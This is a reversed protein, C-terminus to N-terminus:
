SREDIKGKRSKISFVLGLLQLTIVPMMAVMAIVGFGDILVNAGEVQSAVGHAFALIFTASMPGSAVAGADFAIGVFLPPVVAFLALSLGYGVLLLHWLQIAPVVIKLISLFIAMGVGFCLAILVNGKSIYGSTVEEIQHTLVYVAPEALIIVVGIIFSIVLVTMNGLGALQYGVVAGANMFGANVGWLFLILGILTLVLGVSIRKFLRKSVKISFFNVIFFLIAIPALSIFSDRAVGVFSNIFPNMLKGSASLEVELDGAIEGHFTIVGALLVVLITICSSTGVLGFSDEKASTSDKKLGSVGGAVALIFPVALAGTVAASADFAIALFGLESFIGLILILSFTILFFIKVSKNFVIRLLGLMVSAAVGVSVILVISMRSLAGSTVLAVQEALIHLDPEAVSIFFGLLLGGICLVALKNSKAVSIGMEKGMPTFGTSIGILFITLGIIVCLAGIYFRGLILADVPILIFSLLSVIIIVPGVAMLVEKLKDTVFSM